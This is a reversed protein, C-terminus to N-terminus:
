HGRHQGSGGARAGSTYKAPDKQFAAKCAAACFYYTKGQWGATAAATQENVDMGCVPDKTM